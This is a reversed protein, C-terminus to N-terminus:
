RLAWEQVRSVTIDVATQNGCFGATGLEVPSSHEWPNQGGVAAHMTLMVSM